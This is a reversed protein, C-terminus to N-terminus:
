TSANLEQPEAQMELAVELIVEAVTRAAKVLANQATLTRRELEFGFNPVQLENVAFAAEALARHLNGLGLEAHAIMARKVNEPSERNVAEIYLKTFRDIVESEDDVEFYRKADSLIKPFEPDSLIQAPLMKKVEMDMFRETVKRFIGCFKGEDLVPLLEELEMGRDITLELIEDVTLSGVMEFKKGWLWHLQEDTMILRPM